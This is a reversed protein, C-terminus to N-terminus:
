LKIRRTFEFPGSPITVRAHYETAGARDEDEEWQELHRCSRVRRFEVSYGDPLGRKIPHWVAYAAPPISEVSEDGCPCDSDQCVTANCEAPLGAADLAANAMLGVLRKRAVLGDEYQEILM